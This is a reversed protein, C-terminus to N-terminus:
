PSVAVAQALTSAARRRAKLWANTWDTYIRVSDDDNGYKKAIDGYTPSKAYWDSACRYCVPHEWICCEAPASCCECPTPKEKPPGDEAELHMPM